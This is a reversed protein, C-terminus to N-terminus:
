DNTLKIVLYPSHSTINHPGNKKTELTFKTHQSHKRILGLASHFEYINYDKGATKHHARKFRPQGSTAQIGQIQQADLPIHIKQTYPGMVNMVDRMTPQGTTGISLNKVPINARRLCAKLATMPPIIYSYKSEESQLREQYEEHSFGPTLLPPCVAIYNKGDHANTFSAYAAYDLYPSHTGYNELADVALDHPAMFLGDARYIRFGEPDYNNREKMSDPPINIGQKALLEPTIEVSKRPDDPNCIVIKVGARMLIEFSMPNYPAGRRLSWEESFVDPALMVEDVDSLAIVECCRPCPIQGILISRKAIDDYDLDPPDGVLCENVEAHRTASSQQQKSPETNLNEAFDTDLLQDLPKFQASLGSPMRNASMRRGIINGDKDWFIKASVAKTVTGMPAEPHNLKHHEIEQMIQELTFTEKNM